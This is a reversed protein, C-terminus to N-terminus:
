IFLSEWFHGRSPSRDKTPIYLSRVQFLIILACGMNVRLNSSPSIQFIPFVCAGAQLTDPLPGLERKFLKKPTKVLGAYYICDVSGMVLGNGFRAMKMIPWLLHNSKFAISILTDNICETICM